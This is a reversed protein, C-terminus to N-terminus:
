NHLTRSQHIVAFDDLEVIFLTQLATHHHQLLSPLCLFPLLFFFPFFIWCILTSAWGSLFLASCFIKFWFGLSRLYIWEASCFIAQNCSFLLSYLPSLIVSFFLHIVFLFLFWLFLFLFFRTVLAVAIYLVYMVFYSSRLAQLFLKLGCLYLSDFRHLYDPQLGRERQSFTASLFLSHAELWSHVFLFNVFSWSLRRQVSYSLSWSCRRWSWTLELRRRLGDDSVCWIYLESHFSIVPSWQFIVLQYIYFVDEGGQRTDFM